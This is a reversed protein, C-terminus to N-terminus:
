IKVHFNSSSVQDNVKLFLDSLNQMQIQITFKTLVNKKPSFFLQAFFFQCSSVHTVEDVIM